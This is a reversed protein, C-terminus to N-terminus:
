NAEARDLRDIEAAILAAARVLDRRRDRPKWWHSNWPWLERLAAQRPQDFLNSDANAELAYCAAAFAMEGETHTDDHQDSWGEEAHQRRREDAIDRLAGDHHGLVTIVEVAQTLAVCEGFFKGAHHVDARSGELIVQPTAGPDPEGVFVVKLAM